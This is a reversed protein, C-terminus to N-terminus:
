FKSIKEVKGGAAIIKKETRHSCPLKVTLAVNLKGDGLIKVGYRKAEDEKVIGAEILKKLDVVCDAPLLNLYKLNVVIPKSKLPKNRAKGRLLPLRRILATQGGEFGIKIKERAKQGKTGRGSTKGRGSGAGRGLRRNSKVVIKPLNSLDM